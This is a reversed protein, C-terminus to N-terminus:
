RRTLAAHLAPLRTRYATLFTGEDDALPKVPILDQVRAIEEFGPELMTSLAGTVMASLGTRAAEDSLGFSTALAVLEAFQFWFYTPGMATLIAYTELEPEPVEPSQGLPRLLELLDRKGDTVMTPAFSLPNYGANVISPANPIVRAVNGLGGLQSALQGLTVKPALSVVLAGPAIVPTIDALAAGIAPPHLAVFVIDQRAPGHNSGPVVEVAPFRRTLLELVQADTDSVVIRAPLVNAREWGGLMIRVIRGGGIFGITHRTSM